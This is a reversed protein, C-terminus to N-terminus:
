DEGSYGVLWGNLELDVPYGDEGNNLITLDGYFGYTEGSTTRVTLTAEKEGGEPLSHSEPQAAFVLLSLNIILTIAILGTTTGIKKRNM